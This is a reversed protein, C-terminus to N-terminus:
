GNAFKTLSKTLFKVLDEEPKKIWGKSLFFGRNNRKPKPPKVFNMTASRRVPTAGHIVEHGESLYRHLQPRKGSNAMTERKKAVASLQLNLDLDWEELLSGLPGLM